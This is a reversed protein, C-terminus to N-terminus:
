AVGRGVGAVCTCVVASVYDERREEEWRNRREGGGPSPPLFLSPSFGDQSALPVCATPSSCLDVISLYWPMTTHTKLQPKAKQGQMPECYILRLIRHIWPDKQSSVAKSAQMPPHPSAQTIMGVIKGGGGTKRKRGGRRM